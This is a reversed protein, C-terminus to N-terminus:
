EPASPDGEALDSGDMHNVVALHFLLGSLM